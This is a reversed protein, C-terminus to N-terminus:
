ARAAAVTADRIAARIDRPAVVDGVSLVTTDGAGAQLEALLASNADDGFALVVTDAELTTEALSYRNRVDVEHERIAMLEMMPTIQAGMRLLRRHTEIRTTQDWLDAAVFADTLVHVNKGQAAVFEAVTLGQFRHEADGLIVLVEQGPEVFGRMLSRVDTVHPQDLGPVAPRRGMGGTALVIVDAGLSLARDATAERNLVVDVGAQELARQHFDALAALRGRFPARAAIRLAGGVEQEREWLTVDHGVAALQLATEVGAPGGGIVLIKKPREAPGSPVPDTAARALAPNVVCASGETTCVQNCAICPRIEDPRGARAKLPLEIDALTARSMGILDAVGAALLSEATGPGDVWGTYVVPLASAEGLRKAIESGVGPEDGMIPVYGPTSTLLDVQGGTALVAAVAVAQDVTMGGELHHEPGLRVGVIPGEGIRNRVAAVIELLFRHRNEQSGGYQDDRQNTLPSLFEGILYGEGANLDVGDFGGRIAREAAAAFAEVIEAIQDRDMAHPIVGGGPPFTSGLPAAVASPAWLPLSHLGTGGLLGNHNLHALIRTGHEHVAATVLRYPEIIRDSTNEIIRPTPTSTPHVSQPESIILGLGGAARRGWFTALLPLPVNAHDDLGAWNWGLGTAVIRNQIQIDRIAFPAFLEPFSGSAM